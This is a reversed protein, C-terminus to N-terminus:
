SANHMMALRQEQVLYKGLHIVIYVYEKWRRKGDTLLKLAHLIQGETDPKNSKTYYVGPQMWTIAYSLSGEKTHNFLIGNYTYVVYENNM